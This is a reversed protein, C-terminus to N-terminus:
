LIAISSIATGKEVGECCVSEVEVSGEEELIEGDIITTVHMLPDDAVPTDVSMNFIHLAFAFCIFHSLIHNRFFNM